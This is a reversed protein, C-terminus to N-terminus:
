KTLLLFLCHVHDPMGNIIKVRCDMKELEARMVEHWLSEIGQGIMPLRNKTAWIAHIGIQNYSDSMQFKFLNTKFSQSKRFIIVDIKPLQMHYLVNPTDFPEHCITIVMPHSTIFIFEIKIKCHVHVACMFRMNTSYDNNVLIIKDMFTIFDTRKDITNVRTEMANNPCFGSTCKAESLDFVEDGDELITLM